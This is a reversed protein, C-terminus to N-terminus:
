ACSDTITLSQNCFPCIEPIKESTQEYGCSQCSWTSKDSKKITAFESQSSLYHRFREEHRKEIESLISFAVSIKSFGEEKAINAFDPYISNGEMREGEAAFQLNEVTSGAELTPFTVAPAKVGGEKLHEAFVISHRDEQKAAFEFYAAIHEFGESRAKEAFLAYRNRALSEGAFSKLLNQETRTGKISM